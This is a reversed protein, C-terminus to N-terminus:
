LDDSTVIVYCQMYGFKTVKISLCFLKQLATPRQKILLFM